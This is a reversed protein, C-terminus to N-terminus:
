PWTITFDKGVIVLRDIRDGYERIADDAAKVIDEKSKNSSRMDFLVTRAQESAEVLRHKLRKPSNITKAETPIGDVVLDPTKGSPRTGDPHDVPKLGHSEMDDYRLVKSVNQAGNDYLWDIILQEKDQVEREKKSKAEQAEEPPLVLGDRELSRLSPPIGRKDTGDIVTQRISVKREIRIAGDPVWHASRTHRTPHWATHDPRTEAVYAKWAQRMGEPSMSPSIAEYWEEQLDLVIQPLDADSVSERAQCRCRDHFRLGEPRRKKSGPGPRRRKGVTLVTEKTYVAGRSALMLCFWCANPEPVRAYRTKAARCSEWITERAGQQLLRGLPGSFLRAAAMIDVNSNGLAWSTAGRVQAYPIPDAPVPTPLADWLGLTKRSSELAMIASGVTIRHYKQILRNCVATFEVPTMTPNKSVILFLGSTARAVADMMQASHSEWAGM